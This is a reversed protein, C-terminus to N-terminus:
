LLGVGLELLGVGLELLRVGLGGDLELVSHVVM